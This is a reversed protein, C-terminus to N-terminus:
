EKKNIDESARLIESITYPVIRLVGNSSPIVNLLEDVFPAGRGLLSSVGGEKDKYFVLWDIQKLGKAGEIFVWDGNPLLVRGDGADLTLEDHGYIISMAGDDEPTKVYEEAIKEKMKKMYSMWKKRILVAKM